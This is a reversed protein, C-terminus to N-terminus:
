RATSAKKALTLDTPLCPFPCMAVARDLPSTRAAARVAHGRARTGPGVGRGFAPPLAARRPRHSSRFPSPTARSANYPVRRARWQSRWRAPRRAAEDGPDLAGEDLELMSALSKRCPKNSYGYLGM